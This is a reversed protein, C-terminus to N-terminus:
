TKMCLFPCLELGAAGAPLELVDAGGRVQAQDVQLSWHHTQLRRDGAAPRAHGPHASVAAHVEEDHAGREDPM